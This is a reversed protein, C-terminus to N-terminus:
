ERKVEEYEELGKNIPDKRSRMIGSARGQSGEVGIAREHKKIAEEPEEIERRSERPKKMSRLGRTNNRPERRSRM